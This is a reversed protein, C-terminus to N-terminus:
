FTTQLQLFGKDHHFSVEYPEHDLEIGEIGQLRVRGFLKQLSFFARTEYRTGTTELGPLAYPGGNHWVSVRDRMGGVRVGLSSPFKFWSDLMVCRDIVNLTTNAVPPRWVQTRDMYFYRVAVHGHEGIAQTLSGKIRWRRAFQHHDGPQQDWYAYSSAQVTEFAGEITTGGIRQSLVGDGKAGWLKEDRHLAPDRTEFRKTSPTLWKANVSFKPGSGRWTVSAAPEFPHRIYPEAEGGVRVQRQSWFHNFIDELTFVGQLQLPTLASGHEWMLAMDQRSKEFNPTYRFGWRGTHAIPFHAELRTWGYASEMDAFDLYDLRFRTTDGLPVEFKLNNDIHWHGATFCGQSSRFANLTRDFEDHWDFPSRVLEQDFFYEDDEETNGVNVTSFEEYSARARAPLLLCGLLLWAALRGQRGRM